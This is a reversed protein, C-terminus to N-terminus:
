SDGGTFVEIGNTSSYVKNCINEITRHLEELTYNGARLDMQEFAVKRYVFIGGQKIHQLVDEISVRLGYYGIYTLKLSNASTSIRVSAELPLGLRWDVLVHEECIIRSLTRVVEQEGYTPNAVLAYASYGLPNYDPTFSGGFTFGIPLLILIFLVLCKGGRGRKLLMSAGLGALIPLLIYSVVGLYRDLVLYTAVINGIFALLLFIASAIFMTEVIVKNKPSKTYHDYELWAVFALIPIAYLAVYSVLHSYWSPQIVPTYVAHARGIILDSIVAFISRTLNVIVELVTTLGWYVLTITGFVVLTKGFVRQSISDRTFMSILWGISLFIIFCLAVGGHGIATPVSLLIILIMNERELCEHEGLKLGLLFICLALSISYAQPIFWPIWLVVMCNTLTFISSLSAGENIGFVKSYVIVPLLTILFLYAFGALVSAWALDIGLVSSVFTYLISPIPIPYADYTQPIYGENTMDSAYIIDRWTDNGLSPPFVMYILAFFLLFFAVLMFINGIELKAINRLSIVILSLAFLSLSLIWRHGFQTVELIAALCFAFLLIIMALLFRKSVAKSPKIKKPSPKIFLLITISVFLLSLSAVVIIFQGGTMIRGYFHYGVLLSAVSVLSGIWVVWKFVRKMKELSPM